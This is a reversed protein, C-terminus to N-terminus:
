LILHGVPIGTEQVFLLAPDFGIFFLCVYIPGGPSFLVKPVRLLGVYGAWQDRVHRGVM